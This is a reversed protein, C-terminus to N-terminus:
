EQGDADGLHVSAKLATGQDEDLGQFAVLEAHSQGIKRCVFQGADLSFARIFQGGNEAREGM